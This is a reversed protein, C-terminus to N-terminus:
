NRTSSSTAIEYLIAQTADLGLCGFSAGSNSFPILTTNELGLVKDREVSELPLDLGTPDKWRADLRKRDLSGARVFM